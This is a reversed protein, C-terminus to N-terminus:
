GKKTGFLIMGGGIIMVAVGALPSWVVAHKKNRTIEVNGIDVVKERTFFSFGTIGTIIIGIVLIAIGIKKM